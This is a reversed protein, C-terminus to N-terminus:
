KMEVIEEIPQGYIDVYIHEIWRNKTGNMCSSSLVDM